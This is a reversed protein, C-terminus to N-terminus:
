GDQWVKERSSARGLAATAPAAATRMRGPPMCQCGTPVRDPVTALRDKPPALDVSTISTAPAGGRSASTGLASAGEGPESTRKSMSGLCTRCRRPQFFRDLEYPQEYLRCM